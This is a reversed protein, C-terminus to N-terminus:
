IQCRIGIHTISQPSFPIGVTIIMYPEGENENIAIVTGIAVSPDIDLVIINGLKLVVTRPARIEYTGNKQGYLSLLETSEITKGIVVDGNWALSIRSTYTDTNALTGILINNKNVVIDGTKCLTDSGVNARFSQSIQTDINGIRTAFVTRLSSTAYKEYVRIMDEAAVLNVYKQQEIFLLEQTSRLENYLSENSRVYMSIASVTRASQAYVWTQTLGSWEVVTIVGNRISSWFVVFLLLFSIGVLYPLRSPKSDRRYTMM